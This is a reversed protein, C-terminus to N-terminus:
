ALPFLWCHVTKLHRREIRGLILLRLQLKLRMSVLIHVPVVRYTSRSLVGEDQRRRFQRYSNTLQLRAQELPECLVTFLRGRRRYSSM